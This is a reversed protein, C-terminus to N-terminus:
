KSSKTLSCIQPESLVISVGGTDALDVVLFWAKAEHWGESDKAKVIVTGSSEVGDKSKLHISVGEQQKTSKTFSIEEFDPLNALSEENEVTLYFSLSERYRFSGGILYGVSSYYRFAFRPNFVSYTLDVPERIHLQWLEDSKEGCEELGPEKKPWNSLAVNATGLAYKRCDPLHAIGVLKGELEHGNTLTIVQMGERLEAQQFIEYPVIMYVGDVVQLLFKDKEGRFEKKGLLYRMLTNKDRDDLDFDFELSSKELPITVDVGLKTRLQLVPQDSVPQAFCLSTFFVVTALVSLTLVPLAWRIKTLVNSRRFTFRQGNYNANKSLILM